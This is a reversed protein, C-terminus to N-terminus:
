RLRFVQLLPVSEVSLEYAPRDGQLHVAWDIPRWMAKRAYRLLYEPERPERDIVTPARAETGVCALALDPNGEVLSPWRTEVVWDGPARGLTQNFCIEELLFGPDIVSGGPIVEALDDLVEQNLVDKINTIELGRREAGAVGGVFLNVYSLQFPHTRVVAALAPLFIAFTVLLGPVLRRADGRSIPLRAVGAAIRATGLGGLVAFFPFAPLILRVGDHMPASPVMLALYLVAANLVCFVSLRLNGRDFLGALIAILITPPLVILTWVFPYHWPGRYVYLTGFYLTRIQNLVDASRDVGAGLYDSIGTAPDTWVVPNSAVFVLTAALGLVAAAPVLQRPRTFLLWIGLVPVALLGTFKTALAAGLLLGSMVLSRPGPNETWAYLCAASGFWFASLFLDTHAFHGHAFLVPILLIGLGAGVGALLSRANRATFAACGGALASYTIMVGVRYATVDGLVNRFVLWGLGSIERSLPPHPVRILLWRWQEAVHDPALATGPNGSLLARLFEHFWALQRLSSYFYNGVDSALGYDSETTFMAVAAVLFFAAGLRRVTAPSPPAIDSPATGAGTESM